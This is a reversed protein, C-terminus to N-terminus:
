YNVCLFPNEPPKTLLEFLVGEVQTKFTKLYVCFNMNQNILKGNVNTTISM